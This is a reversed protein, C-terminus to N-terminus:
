SGPSGPTRSDRCSSRHRCCDSCARAAHGCLLARRRHARQEEQGACCFGSQAATGRRAGCQRQLRHRPCRGSQPGPQSTCGGGFGDSTAARGHWGASCSCISQGATSLRSGSAGERRAAVHALSCAALARAAAWSIQRVQRSRGQTPVHRPASRSSAQSTFRGPVQRRHRRQPSLSGSAQQDGWGRGRRAKNSLGTALACGAQRLWAGRGSGRRVSTCPCCRSGPSGTALPRRAGAPAPPAPARRPRPPVGTAGHRGGAALATTGQTDGQPQGQSLPTPPPPRVSTICVFSPSLTYTQVPIAHQAAVLLPM